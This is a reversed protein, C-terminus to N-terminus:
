EADFHLLELGCEKGVATSLRVTSAAPTPAFAEFYDVGLKQNFGKAIRRAKARTVVSMEGTKWKYICKAGIAKRDPPLEAPSFADTNQPGTLQETAEFWM